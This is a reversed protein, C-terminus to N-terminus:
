SMSRAVRTVLYMEFDDCQNTNVRIYCKRLNKYLLSVQLESITFFGPFFRRFDFFVASNLSFVATTTKAISENSKETEFITDQFFIIMRSGIYFFTLQVM